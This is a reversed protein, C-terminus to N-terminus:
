VNLNLTSHFDEIFGSISSVQANKLFCIRRSRHLKRYQPKKKVVVHMCCCAVVLELIEVM